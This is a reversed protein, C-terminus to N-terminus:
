ARMAASMPEDPPPELWSPRERYELFTATASARGTTMASLEQLYRSLSDLPADATIIVLGEREHQAKIWGRRSSLDGIVNGVFDPPTTVTVSLVPELIIEKVRGNSHVRERQFQILPESWLWDDPFRSALREAASDLDPHWICGILVGDPMAEASIRPDDAFIAAHADFTAGVRREKPKAFIELPKGLSM